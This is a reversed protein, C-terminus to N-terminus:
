NLNKWCNRDWFGGIKKGMNKIDAVQVNQWEEPFMKRYSSQTFRDDLLVVVGVDEATRIVRGAAQLVKNMGPFRYAYDFGSNSERDFYDKILERENCVLPLGTGVIISGILSDKKLDIGESFIGGLVCFAILTEPKDGEEVEVDFDIFESFDPIESMKFRSLFDEREVENMYESQVLLEAEDEGYLSLYSEYVSGMFSYSPCFVMYNGSKKATINHIHEAIREYQDRTRMSFKSTM